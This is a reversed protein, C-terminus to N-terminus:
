PQVRNRDYPGIYRIMTRETEPISCKEACATIGHTKCIPLSDYAVLAADAIDDPLGDLTLMFAAREALLAYFLKAREAMVPDPRGVYQSDVRFSEVRFGKNTTVLLDARKGDPSHRLVVAPVSSAGEILATVHTGTKKPIRSM